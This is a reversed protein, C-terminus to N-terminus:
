RSGYVKALAAYIARAVGDSWAPDNFNALDKQQASSGLRVRVGPAPVAALVPDADVESGRVGPQVSQLSAVLVQSLQVSSLYVGPAVKGSKM